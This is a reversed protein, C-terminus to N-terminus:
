EVLYQKLSIRCSVTEFSFAKRDVTWAMAGIFVTRYVLCPGMSCVGASDLLLQYCPGLSLPDLYWKLVCIPVCISLVKLGFRIM